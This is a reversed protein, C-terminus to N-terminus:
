RCTQLGAMKAARLRREGAVLEYGVDAQRVLLPQLIGQTRISDSLQALEDADFRIRPQFRNPRILISIASLYSKRARNGPRPGPDTGYRSDARGVGAL